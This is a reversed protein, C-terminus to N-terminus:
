TFLDLLPACVCLTWRKTSVGQRPTGVCLRYISRVTGIPKVTLDDDKLLEELTMRRQHQGCNTVTTNNMTPLEDELQKAVGRRQLLFIASAVATVAAIAAAASAQRSSMVDIFLAIHAVAEEATFSQM